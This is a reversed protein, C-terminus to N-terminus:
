KKLNKIKNNLHFITTEQTENMEHLENCKNKFNDVLKKLEDNQLNYREENEIILKQHTEKLNNIDNNLTNNFNTKLINM